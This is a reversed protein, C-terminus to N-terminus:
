YRLIFDVSSLAQLKDEAKTALHIDDTLEMRKDLIHKKLDKKYYYSYQSIKGKILNELFESEFTVPQGAKDLPYM